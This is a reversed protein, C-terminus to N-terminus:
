GFWEAVGDHGDCAGAREHGYWYTGDECQATAAARDAVAM